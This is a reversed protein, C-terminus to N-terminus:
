LTGHSSKSQERGGTHKRSARQNGSLNGMSANGSSFRANENSKMSAMKRGSKTNNRKVLSSKVKIGPTDSFPDEDSSNESQEESTYFVVDDVEITM